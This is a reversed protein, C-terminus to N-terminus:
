PQVRIDISVDQEANYVDMCIWYKICKASGFVTPATPTSTQNMEKEQMARETYWKNKNYPLHEDSETQNIGKQQSKPLLNTHTTPESFDPNLLLRPQSLEKIRGWFLKEEWRQSSCHGENM